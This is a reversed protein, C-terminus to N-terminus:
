FGRRLCRSVIRGSSYDLLRVHAASDEAMHACRITAGYVYLNDPTAAPSGYTPAFRPPASVRGVFGGIALAACVSTTLMAKHMPANRM